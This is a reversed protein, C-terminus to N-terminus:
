PHSQGLHNLTKDFVALAQTDYLCFVVQLPYMGHRSLFACTESLMIEACDEIPYGFIGASVAPFAISRLGLETARLLANRTANRLKVEEFGEGYTPGVTHIIVKCPLTGSGTVVAEGVRCHGIENSEEQISNGGKRVLAGAVGGGHKLSTNAPNVIAEVREETIDAQRTEITNDGIVHIM